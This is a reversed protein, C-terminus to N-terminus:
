EQVTFLVMKQVIRRILGEIEGINSLDFVYSKHGEGELEELCERLRVENRAILIVKAGLRALYKCTERGIGSSAGTVIYQKNDLKWINDM